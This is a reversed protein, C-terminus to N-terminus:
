VSAALENVRALVPALKEPWFPVVPVAGVSCHALAHLTSLAEATFIAEAAAPV